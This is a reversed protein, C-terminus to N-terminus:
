EESALIQEVITRDTERLNGGLEFCSRESWQMGQSNKHQNPHDYHDNSLHEM